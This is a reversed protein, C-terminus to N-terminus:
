ARQGVKAAHEALRCMAEDYAAIKREIARDQRVPFGVRPRAFPVV